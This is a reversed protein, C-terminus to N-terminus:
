WESEKIKEAITRYIKKIDIKLDTKTGNEKRKMSDISEDVDKQLYTKRAVMKVKDDDISDIIKEYWYYTHWPHDADLECHFGLSILNSDRKEDGYIVIKFTGSAQIWIFCRYGCYEVIDYVSYVDEIEEPMVIKYFLDDNVNLAMNTYIPMEYNFERGITFGDEPFASCIILSGSERDYGVEKYKKGNYEVVDVDIGLMNESLAMKCQQIYQAISRKENM